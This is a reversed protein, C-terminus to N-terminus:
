IQESHITLSVTKLKTENLCLDENPNRRRDEVFLHVLFTSIEPKSGVWDTIRM